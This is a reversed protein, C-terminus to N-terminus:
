FGFNVKAGYWFFTKEEGDYRTDGQTYSVRAGASIRCYDTLDYAFDITAGAYWYDNSLKIGDVFNGSIFENWTLTGTFDATTLWGSYVKIPMTFRSSLGTVMAGIDATYSVSVEVTHQDLTANYYYYLAPNLNVGIYASTDMTVGFYIEQTRNELPELDTYWYYIYGLDFTFSNISYTTGIYIDVETFQDTDSGRSMPANTFAGFYLDYNEMLPYAFDVSAQVSDEALEEGRFVYKSEYGVSTSVRLYDLSPDTISSQANASNALFGLPALISILPLIYKKM